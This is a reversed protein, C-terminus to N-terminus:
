ALLATLRSSNMARLQQQAFFRATTVKTMNEHMKDRQVIM